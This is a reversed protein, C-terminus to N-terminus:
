AFVEYRISVPVEWSIDTKDASLVDPAAQITVKVGNLFLALDAPFHEAIEGALDNAIRPGVNLPTKVTLQLIGQRMHPASGKLFLRSNANRFHRVEIYTAPKDQGAPPFDNNPLAIPVVDDFELTNVRSLLATEIKDELTM